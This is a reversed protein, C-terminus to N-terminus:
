SRKADSRLSLYRLAVYSAALSTIIGSVNLALEATEMGQLALKGATM